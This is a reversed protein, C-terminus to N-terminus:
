RAVEEDAAIISTQAKTIEVIATSSSLVRIVSANHSGGDGKVEVTEDMGTKQLELM